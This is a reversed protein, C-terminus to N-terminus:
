EWEEQPEEWGPIFRRIRGFVDPTVVAEIKIGNETYEQQELIAERNLLDLVGAEAYPILLKVHRRGQDLKSLIMAILDETGEGTKASVCVTNEGHPLIGLYADCKNFVRICPTQEAGLQRILDDVM